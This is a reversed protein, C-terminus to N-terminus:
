NYRELAPPGHPLGGMTLQDVRRRGCCRDEMGDDPVLDDFDEDNEGEVGPIPEVGKVQDAAAADAGRQDSRSLDELCRQQRVGRGDDDPVVVRATVGGWASLIQGQCPPEHGGTFEQANDDGVVDDHAVVASEEAEELASPHIGKGSSYLRLAAVM